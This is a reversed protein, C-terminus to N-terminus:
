LRGAHGPFFADSSKSKAAAQPIVGFIRKQPQSKSALQRPLNLGEDTEQDLPIGEKKMAQKIKSPKSFAFFGRRLKGLFGGPRNAIWTKVEAKKIWSEIKDIQSQSLCDYAEADSDWLENKLLTFYHRNMGESSIRQLLRECFSDPRCVFSFLKLGIYGVLHVMCVKKDKRGEVWKYKVEKM